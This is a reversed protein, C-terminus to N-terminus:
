SIPHRPGPRACSSAEMIDEPSQPDATCVSHPSAQITTGTPKGPVAKSWFSQGCAFGVGRESMSANAETSCSHKVPSRGNGPSVISRWTVACRIVGGGGDVVFGPTGALNRRRSRWPSPSPDRDATGLLSPTPARQGRRPGPLRGRPVSGRCIPPTSGNISWGGCRPRPPPRVSSMNAVVAASGSGTSETRGALWRPQWIPSCRGRITYGCNSM